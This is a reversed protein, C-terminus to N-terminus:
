NSGKFADVVYRASCPQGVTEFALQIAVQATQVKDQPIPPMMRGDIEIAYANGFESDLYIVMEHRM